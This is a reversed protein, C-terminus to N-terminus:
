EYPKRFSFLESNRTGSHPGQGKVPRGPWKDAHLASDGSCSMVRTPSLGM